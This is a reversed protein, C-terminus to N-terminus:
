LLETRLRKVDQGRRSELGGLLLTPDICTNWMRALGATASNWRTYAELWALTSVRKARPPALPVADADSSTGPLGDPAKWWPPLGPGPYDPPWVQERTAVLDSGPQQQTADGPTADLPEPHSPARAPAPAAQERHQERAWAEGDPSMPMRALLYKGM